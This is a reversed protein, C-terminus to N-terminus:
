RPATGAPPAACPSAGRWAASGSRNATLPCSHMKEAGCGTRTPACVPTSVLHGATGQPSSPLGCAMGPASRSCHGAARVPCGRARKEAQSLFHGQPTSLALSGHSTLAVGGGGPCPMLRMRDGGRVHTVSPAWTHASCADEECM